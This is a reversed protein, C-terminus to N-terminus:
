KDREPAHVEGRCAPWAPHIEDRQDRQPVHHLENGDARGAENQEKAATAILRPLSLEAFRLQVGVISNHREAM